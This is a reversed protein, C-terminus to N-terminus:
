RAEVVLTSLIKDDLSQRQEDWLPWLLTLLSYIGGTVAGLGGRIFLRALGLGGGPPQGDAMRVLKIKMIGKGFSQGTAGQRWGMNWISFLWGVLLLLAGIAALGGGAGGGDGAAAAGTLLLLYGPALAVANIVGDILFAGVRQGYSALAGAVAAPAQMGSWGGTGYPQPPQQAPPAAPPQYSPASPPQYPSGPAQYPGQPPAPDSM